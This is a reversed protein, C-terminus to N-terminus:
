ADKIKKAGGCGYFRPLYLARLLIGTPAAASMKRTCAGAAIESFRPKTPIEGLKRVLYAM